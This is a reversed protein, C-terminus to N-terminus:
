VPQGPSHCSRSSSIAGPRNTTIICTMALPARVALEPPKRARSRSARPCHATSSALRQDTLVIILNCDGDLRRAAIVQILKSSMAYPRVARSRSIQRSTLSPCEVQVDDAAEEDGAIGHLIM